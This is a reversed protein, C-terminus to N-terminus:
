QQMEFINQRLKDLTQVTLGHWMSYVTQKKKVVGKM